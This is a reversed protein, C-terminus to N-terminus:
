PFRRLEQRGRTSLRRSDKAESFLLNRRGRRLCGLLAAALLSLSPAGFAAGRRSLSCGGGSAQQAIKPVGPPAASAGPDVPEALAGRPSASLGEAPEGLSQAFMWDIFGPLDYGRDIISHGVGPM